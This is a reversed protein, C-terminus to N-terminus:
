RGLRLEVVDEDRFPKVVYRVWIRLEADVLQTEVQRLEMVESLETELARRINAKLLASATESSPAFVQRQLGAGLEPRHPREGPSTLLVQEVLQRVYAKWDAEERWGGRGEDLGLPFRLAHLPAKM